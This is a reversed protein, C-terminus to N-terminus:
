ATPVSTSSHQPVARFEIGHLKITPAIGFHNAGFIKLRHDLEDKPIDLPIDCLAQYNHRSKKAGNWQLSTTPLPDGVNALIASMKWFMMALRAYAMGELTAVSANAPVPFLVVDIIPGSDVKEAMVHVTAGFETAQDYLAFHTPAWGPYQPPGPHFNYAGYGLAALVGPPVIVPTVFGILRAQALVDPTITALDAPTTAPIVTLKPNQQRLVQTLAHEAPGALLIITDFMRIVTTLQGV